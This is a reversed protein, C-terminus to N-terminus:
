GNASINCMKNPMIILCKNGNPPWGQPAMILGSGTTRNRVVELINKELGLAVSFWCLVKAIKPTM